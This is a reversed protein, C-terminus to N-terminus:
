AKIKKEYALLENLTTSYSHDTDIYIWDFYSDNFSSAADVSTVRSINIIKSNIKKLFNIKLLTLNIKVM